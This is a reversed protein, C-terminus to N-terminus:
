SALKKRALPRVYAAPPNHATAFDYAKQYFAKAKEKDGLKEYTIALLCNFFPDTTNGQMSLTKTFDAEAGKLDGSYLAVYGTLYPFYREQATAMSKDGDLAARAVTIQKAAEAKNGRRAALRGLAHALRFDWLSKPHTRPEPEKMGLEAGRRYYKEAANFDGADICVRAAENAMEGEQYFANQPEAQERTTWYAIVADESKAADACDGDFAYSMALARQSEAKAAPDPATAILKNIIERSKATSGESDLRSADRLSDARPTRPGGGQAFVWGPLACFLAAALARRWSPFLSVISIM